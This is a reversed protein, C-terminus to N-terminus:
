TLPEWQWARKNAIIIMRDDVGENVIGHTAQQQTTTNNDVQIKTITLIGPFLRM